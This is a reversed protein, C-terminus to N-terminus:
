LKRTKLKRRTLLLTRTRMRKLEQESPQRYVESTPIDYTAQADGMANEPIDQAENGEIGEVDAEHLEKRDGEEETEIESDYEEDSAEEEYTPIDYITVALTAQADGMANEPM